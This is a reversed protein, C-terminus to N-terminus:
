SPVALEPQDKALKKYFSKQSLITLHQGGFFTSGGVNKQGGFCKSGPLNNVGFFPEVGSFKNGRFYTLGGM